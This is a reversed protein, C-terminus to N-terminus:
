GQGETTVLYFYFLRARHLAGEGPLCLRPISSKRSESRRNSHQVACGIATHKLHGRVTLLDGHLDRLVSGQLPGATGAATKTAIVFGSLLLMLFPPRPEYQTPVDYQPIM